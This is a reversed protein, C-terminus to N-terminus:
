GRKDDPDGDARREPAGRTHELAAFIKKFYKRCNAAGSTDYGGSWYSHHGSDDDYGNFWNSPTDMVGHLVVHNGYTDVLWKGEVHLNPLPKELHTPVEHQAFANMTLAM